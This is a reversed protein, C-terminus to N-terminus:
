GELNQKFRSFVVPWAAQFYDYTENWHDASGFGLHTLRIHTGGDNIPDFEVVVWTRKARSDTQEPPANWSFSLMRNPIFSLVQCDNSGVEGDWLWEYRGGIALDINAKLASREPDYAKVFGASDSWAAYVSEVPAVISVEQVFSRTESDPAFLNSDIPKKMDNEGHLGGGFGVKQAVAPLDGKLEALYSFFYKTAEM